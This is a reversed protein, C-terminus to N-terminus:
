QFIEEETNNTTSIIGLSTESEKWLQDFLEHPYARYLKALKFIHRIGPLLAGCEWRSIISADAFGLLRAVKKQSLGAMRRFKRLKNPFRGFEM